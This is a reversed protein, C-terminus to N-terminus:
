KNNHKKFYYYCIFNFIENLFNNYKNKYQKNEKINFLM